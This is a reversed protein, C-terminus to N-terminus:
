TTHPLPAGDYNLRSRRRGISVRAAVNSHEACNSAMCATRDAPIHDAVEQLIMAAKAAAKAALDGKTDATWTSHREAQRAAAPRGATKVLTKFLHEAIM